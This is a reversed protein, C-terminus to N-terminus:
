EWVQPMKMINDTEYGIAKLRQLIGGYTEDKMESERAMIWIFKKNPVGIVTYSYDEALDIILYPFKVPWLFQVRWEAKSEQDYIWGKPQMHKVKGDRSDTFRYDIKVRDGNLLKYSEIGNMAYKEIPNPITAIVYWDGMFREIDVQEVTQMDSEKCASLM